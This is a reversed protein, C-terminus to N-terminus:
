AYIVTPLGQAVFWDDLLQVLDNSSAGGRHAEAVEAHLARIPDVPDQGVPTRHIAGLADRASELEDRAAGLSSQPLTGLKVLDSIEQVGSSANGVRIQARHEAAIYAPTSCAPGLDEDDDDTDVDDELDPTSM